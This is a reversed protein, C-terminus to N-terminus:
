LLPLGNKHKENSTNGTWEPHTAAVDFINKDRRKEERRKEEKREKESNYFKCLGIAVINKLVSSLTALIDCL